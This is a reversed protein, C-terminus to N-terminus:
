DLVNSMEVLKMQYFTPFLELKVIEATFTVDEHDRLKFTITDGVNLQRRKEDNVRAEITKIGSKIQDFPKQHLRMEHNM